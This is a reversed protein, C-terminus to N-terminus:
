QGAMEVFEEDSQRVPRKKAVTADHLKGPPEASCEAKGGGGQLIEAGSM